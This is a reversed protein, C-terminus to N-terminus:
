KARETFTRELRAVDELQLGRLTFVGDAIPRDYSQDHFAIETKNGTQLNHAVAKAVHPGEDGLDDIAIRITRLPRGELDDSEVKLRVWGSGDIFNRIQRVGLQNALTESKPHQLVEHIIRGDVERSAVREWEYDDVEIRFFKRVDELSFESGLFSERRNTAAIRRPTARKPTYVWQDDGREPDFHDHVLYAMNRMDPPSTVYFALRSDTATFSRFSLLGRERVREKSDIIRMTWRQSVSRGFNRLNVKEIIERGSLEDGSAAAPPPAPLLALALIASSRIAVASIKRALLGHEALQSSLEPHGLM